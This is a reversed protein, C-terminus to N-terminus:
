GRPLFEGYYLLIWGLAFLLAYILVIALTGRPHEMGNPRPNEMTSSVYELAIRVPGTYVDGFPADLSQSTSPDRSLRIQSILGAPQATMENLLAPEGTTVGDVGRGVRSMHIPDNVTRVYVEKGV